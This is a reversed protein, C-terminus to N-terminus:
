HALMMGTGVSNLAAQIDNSIGDFLRPNSRTKSVLNRVAITKFHNCTTDAFILTEDARQARFTALLGFSAHDGGTITQVCRKCETRGREFAAGRPCGPHANAKMDVDGLMSGIFAIAHRAVVVPHYFTKFCLLNQPRAADGGMTHM